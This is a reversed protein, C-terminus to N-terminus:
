SVTSKKSPPISAKISLKPPKLSRKSKTRPPAAPLSSKGLELPPVDNGFMWAPTEDAALKLALSQFDGQFAAPDKVSKEYGPLSNISLEAPLPTEDKATSPVGRRVYSEVETQVLALRMGEHEHGHAAAVLGRNLDIGPHPSHWVPPRSAAPLSSM